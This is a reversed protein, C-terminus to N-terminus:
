EQRRILGHSMFPSVGKCSKYFTIKGNKLSAHKTDAWTNMELEFLFYYAVLSDEPAPLEFSFACSTLQYDKLHGAVKTEGVTPSSNEILYKKNFLMYETSDMYVEITFDQPHLQYGFQLRKNIKECWASFQVPGGLFESIYYPGSDYEEENLAYQLRYDPGKKRKEQLILNSLCSSTSFVLLFLLVIKKRIDM